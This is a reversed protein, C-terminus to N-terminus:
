GGRDATALIVCNPHKWSDAQPGETCDWSTGRDSPLTEEFWDPEGVSEASYGAASVEFRVEPNHVGVVGM